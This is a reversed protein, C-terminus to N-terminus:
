APSLLLKELSSVIASAAAGATWSSRGEPDLIIQVREADPDRYREVVAQIQDGRGEWLVLGDGALLVRPHMTLNAALAILRGLAATSRSLIEAADQDGGALAALFDDFTAGHHGVESLQNAIGSRTLLSEACGIHGQSCLSGGSGLPIHGALGLGTDASSVVRGDSVLGYGVGAGVTIVAFNPAARAAGFMHAGEALATVDNEVVVTANIKERLMDALPVNKWGLFPDRVVVSRDNVQGGLSVGVALLPERTGPALRGVLTELVDTVPGPQSDSISAEAEALIQGRLDTLVAYARTSTINIGVYRAHNPNVDYGKRPRGPRPVDARDPAEVETLAGAELFPKSLRTLSPGSLDLRRALEDRSIPGRMLVEVFLAQESPTLSVTTGKMQAGWLALM